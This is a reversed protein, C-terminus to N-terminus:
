PAHSTEAPTNAPQDVRVCSATITLTGEHSGALELVGGRPSAQWARLVKQQLRQSWYPYLACHASVCVEDEPLAMSPAFFRSVIDFRDRREPPADEGTCPASIILGRCGLAEVQRSDPSFKLVDAPSDFIAMHDDGAVFCEAPDRGALARIRQVSDDDLPQLETQPFEVQVRNALRGAKLVGIGSHWEVLPSRTSTTVWETAALTAHGCIRSESRRNFWRIAYARADPDSDPLETIFATTPADLEQALRLLDASPPFEDLEVVAAANGAAADGVGADVVVYSEGYRLEGRSITM